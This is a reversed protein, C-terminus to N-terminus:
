TPFPFVNYPAQRGNISYQKEIYLIFSLIQLLCNLPHIALFIHEDFKSGSLSSIGSKILHNNQKDFLNSIILSLLRKPRSDKKHYAIGDFLYYHESTTDVFKQIFAKRLDVAQETPLVEFEMNHCERYNFLESIMKASLGGVLLTFYYNFLLTAMLVINQFVIGRKSFIDWFRATSKM